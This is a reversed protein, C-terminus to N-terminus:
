RWGELAGSIVVNKNTLTRIRYAVNSSSPQGSVDIESSGYMKMGGAYSAQLSLPANAWNVGNDRSVDMVFDTNPVLADTEVTQVTGRIKTPVALAAVSTSRITMNSPPLDYPNTPPTFNATWRAIGSIRFEDFYANSPSSGDYAIGIIFGTSQSLWDTNDTYCSGEQVGNLYMKTVGNQRVAAVHFWTNIVLTTTGVIRDANGTFFLLKSANIRMLPLNSASNRSDWLFQLGAVSTFNIWFDVTYDSTHFALDNYPAVPVSRVFGAGSFLMSSGGFKSQANSVVPGGSVQWTRLGTSDVVVTSGNAGDFHLLSNTNSLEQTPSFWDNVDSYIINQSQTNDNAYQATPPTFNATWRGIKSVRFEDFWGKFFNTALGAAGIAPTNAVLSASTTNTVSADQVGNLFLKLANGTRTVAVHYWTDAVITTAGVMVGTAGLGFSLKFSANITLYPGSNSNVGRDFEFLYSNALVAGDTRFWFDYTFDGTGFSYYPSGDGYIYDGIGDLYLSSGGFKSQNTRIKADGVVTFKRPSSCSDTITTSLDAGDFHLLTITNIDNGGTQSVVGTTDDYPDAIGGLLNLRQNNLDAVQIALISVNSNLYSMYSNQASVNSNTTSIDSDLSTFKSAVTGANYTIMAATYDGAMPVVFGTRTNFSSVGSNADAAQEAWYEAEEASDAAEGAKTTATAAAAEAQTVLAGAIQDSALRFETGTPIGMVTMGAQLGGPAIANGNNSIVTLAIEGNFVITVPSATNTKDVQLIVLSSQSVPIPTTAQITNPGGLGTDTATIFSYPLDQVRLWSGVMTAGNKQYIGNYSAVPDQVVWAMSYADASLDAYLSDRTLYVTGGQSGIGNLISEYGTLLERIESKKPEWPDSSPGDRYVQAASLGAM